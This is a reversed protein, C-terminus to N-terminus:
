KAKQATLYRELEARTKFVMVRDAKKGNLDNDKMWLIAKRMASECHAYGDSIATWFKVTELSHTPLGHMMADLDPGIAISLKDLHDRDEWILLKLSLDTLKQLRGNLELLASLKQDDDWKPLEDEVIAWAPLRATLARYAQCADNWGVIYAERSRNVDAATLADSAARYQFAGVGVAAITSIASLVTAAAMILEIRTRREKEEREHRTLWVARERWDRLTMNSM